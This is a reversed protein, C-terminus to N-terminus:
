LSQASLCDPNQSVSFRFEGLAAFLRTFAMLRMNAHPDFVIQYGAIRGRSTQMGAPPRRFPVVSPRFFLNSQKFRPM